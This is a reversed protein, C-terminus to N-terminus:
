YTVNAYTPTDPIEYRVIEYPVVGKSETPHHPMEYNYPIRDEAPVVGKPDTPHHPMEYVHLRSDDTPVVGKPDTPHHQIKVTEYASNM